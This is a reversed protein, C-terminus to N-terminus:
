PTQRAALCEGFHRLMEAYGEKRWAERDGAASRWGAKVVSRIGLADMKEKLAFGFQPHHLVLGPKADAPLPTETDDAYYFLFTPPDDATVYTMPSAAEFLAHARPTDFDERALGFLHQFVKQDAPAGGIRARIFRPDHSSQGNFSGVCVLRSSLRAVPDPADPRSLDDHFGTWLMMGAGASEGVGVFRAPDLKWEGAKSRLFQIARVGDEMPGPFPSITSFRYNISAVAYGASLAGELLPVPIQDKDGSM